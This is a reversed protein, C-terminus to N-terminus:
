DAIAQALGTPVCVFYRKFTSLYEEIAAALFPKRSRSKKLRACRTVHFRIVTRALEEPPVEFSSLEHRAAAFWVPVGTAEDEAAMAHADEYAEWPIVDGLCRHRQNVPFEANVLGHAKAAPHLWRLERDDDVLALPIHELQAAQAHARFPYTVAYWTPGESRILEALEALVAVRKEWSYPSTEFSLRMFEKVSPQKKNPRTVDFAVAIEPRPQVEWAPPDIQLPSFRYHPVSVEYGGLTMSRLTLEELHCQAALGLRQRITYEHMTDGFSFPAPGARATSGIFRRSADPFSPSRIRIEASSKRFNPIRQM